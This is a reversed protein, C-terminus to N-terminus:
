FHLDEHMHTGAPVQEVQEVVQSKEMASWVNKYKILNVWGGRNNQKVHHEGTGDM